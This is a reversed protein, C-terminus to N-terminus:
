IQLGGSFNLSISVRSKKRRTYKYCQNWGFGPWLYPSMRQPHVNTSKSGTHLTCYLKSCPLLDRSSM